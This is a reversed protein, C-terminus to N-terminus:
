WGVGEDLDVAVFDGAFEEVDGDTEEGEVEVGEGVPARRDV